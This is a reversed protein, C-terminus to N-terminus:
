IKVIIRIRLVVPHQGGLKHTADSTNKIGAITINGMVGFTIQNLEVQRM